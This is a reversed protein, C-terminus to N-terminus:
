AFESRGSYLNSLQNNRSLALARRVAADANVLGNGFTNDRGTAGLDMATDILIQRLQGGNLSSNVSWVLSAIGAMNPNAASTGSFMFNVSGDPKMAPSDTAAMLTLSSGFNSYSARNVSTANALGNVTSQGSRQLAGVSMVNSYTTQLRAVGGSYGQKVNYDDMNSNDIDIGGNGAAIAFIAIDSNDRILQELQAQTGGNKLWYEGQIGGQFVVRQNRARAYAITDRIAQQLDVGHYVDNVYVSSNWNIGAIGSGNNATSSMISIAQHGHGPTNTNDDDTPDTILRNTSIDVVSGSKGAATLVGSDLSSILVNSAGQTFRWASGVDSVSLNWQSNFYTDNTRVQMELTSGDGFRLSEIGQFYIERGDALTLYDFSTGRFIAQNTSYFPNFYGLSVGNIGIVNSCCIGCLNLTDTGGRGVVVAGTGLGGSYNLTEGAFTGYTTNSSQSWSLIKMSQSSSFFDQGSTTRAVARFQYDGGTLSSFNALNILSNSLSAGTWTGLNITSGNRLAELRVSSLCTVNSLGYNLEIAGGQFVSNITSDGAADFVNFSSFSINPIPNATLSLNCNTNASSFPYVRAFYTGASLQRIISESSSGNNTSSTIVNGLDDLLQVDADASLGTLSLSFNSESGVCFRYYDNTDAAGVWDSFSRSTNLIGINSATSTSNGAYDPPPVTGVFQFASSTLDLGTVGNLIAILENNDLRIETNKGVTSLRYGYAQNSSIACNSLRRLQITDEGVRFDAIAALDCNGSRAYYTNNADGLIFRDSGLGGLLDDRELLGSGYADFVDNGSNANLSNNFSDGTLIDNGRSGIVSNLAKLAENFIKENNTLRALIDGEDGPSDIPSAYVNLFHETEEVLVKGIATPNSANQTLFVSNLYITNTSKAYAGLAGNMESNSLFKVDPLVGYIGGLIDAGLAQAKSVDFAEGFAVQANPAFNPNFISAATHVLAQTPNTQNQWLNILTEGALTLLKQSNFGTWDAQLPNVLNNVLYNSTNGLTSFSSDIHCESNEFM